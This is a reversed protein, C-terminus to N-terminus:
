FELRLSFQGVRATSFTSSIQGFSGSTIDTNPLGFVPHNLVNFFDARFKLALRNNPLIAFRKALGADMGFASPGRLNNRSGITLGVPGSFDAQAKNTAALSGFLYVANQTTDKHAHAQVDGRNGNFIAPANNAYGAVYANASTGLALGSRWSPTGSVSWGGILENLWFPANSALMKGRGVPLQYIFNSNVVTQVDFDSNAFCEKPNIADCIFNTGTGAAIYNAPASANDMSHSWTYNFDFQLGQSFNKTLTFLLGNYRSTGKNTLFTNEAFQAAMGVNYDLYGDAQLGQIIDAFDGYNILTGFSSGPLARTLGPFGQNELWPQPTVTQGTRVQTELNAFAQSMLQGSAPDRFDVLQSADAQGLLHRGLRGVYNLRMIFHGPLEQQIGANFTLSYPDKLTPDVITNFENSALGFPTNASVFPTLPKTITPATNPNTYVLSNATGGSIRPNGPGLAGVAGTGANGYQTNASNQFLYSSQDQIFNVANIVTRDYVMAFSGNIVTKPSYSPNYAFAFRPAFDKYSPSYLPAANNAKGGLNYTIFPVATPGSTGAASQARRANFYSDFTFNQISQDGHVEYPVSYLQYRLGYTLTLEKTVRWTDGAYLETQFYRYGRIAGQGQPTQTGAANYNYNSGISGIRGLILAFAEDYDASSTTGATRIANTGYGNAVTPRVSADLALNEGGLGLTVFNFDNVLASNTKIFKFTGGFGINHNAIQWNFDDRIEPIPVRRKQSSYGNFPGFLDTTSSTSGGLGYETTGTPAFLSPFNFKSINDGYYFQNVKNQGIQWIHSVVYGYSRDIYPNTAGGSYSSATSGAPFANASEIANERQITFRGFIRQKPTLNYDIRGVYNYLFDPEPFNFRFGGDNVGDANSYAPDNAHPYYANIFALLGTSEGLHQPDLQAIQTPTLQGICNPTTNQRSAATCTNGSVADTNRIYSVFGNRFSDLPVTREINASQIIRSDNFDFFFFLKDRKIPGGIAGGFQNRILPPRRTGVKNNFWSNAVTSTDRHYENLDGHFRNTGNKTVLQFQGGSGTGLDSPLGAVVGRFEELSDVPAGGVIGSLGSGAAIDNVDMGDLTISTQDTRAGTVSSNAVGPQLSFLAAPTSRTQVPLDNLLEVNVNNGISADTTNLTVEQNSASVEVQTTAGAALKSDQTRTIGVSLTIDSISSPAFGDHIFKVAYGKGPPVNPFRYAGQSNTTVVFKVGTSPNTLVVTTGPLSAGTVDTVVGTMGSSDQALLASPAALIVLLLAIKTFLTRM